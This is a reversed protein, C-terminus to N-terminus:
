RTRMVSQELPHGRPSGSSSSFRVHGREVEHVDGSHRPGSCQLLHRGNSVPPLVDCFIASQSVVCFMNALHAANCFNCTGALHAHVPNLLYSPVMRYLLATFVIQSFFKWCHSPSTTDVSLSPHHCQRKPPCSFGCANRAFPLNRFQSQITWLAQWRPSGAKGTSDNM